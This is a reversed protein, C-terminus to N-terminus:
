NQRGSGVRTGNKCKIVLSDLVRFLKAVRAHLYAVFVVIRAIILDVHTDLM